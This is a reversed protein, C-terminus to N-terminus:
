QIVVTRAMECMFRYTSRCLIPSPVKPSMKRARHTSGGVEIMVAVDEVVVVDVDEEEPM